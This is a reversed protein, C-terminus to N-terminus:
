DEVPECRPACTIYNPLFTCETMKDATRGSNIRAVNVVSYRQQINGTTPAESTTDNAVSDTRGEASVLGRGSLPPVPRRVPGRKIREATSGLGVVRRRYM